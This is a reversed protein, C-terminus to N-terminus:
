QGIKGGKAPSRRAPDPGVPVALEEWGDRKVSVALGTILGVLGGVITAEVTYELAPPYDGNKHPLGPHDAYGYAVGLGAGALVGIGLGIFPCTWCTRRSEATAIEGYPICRADASGDNRLCISKARIDTVTGVNPAREARTQVRLTEGLVVAGSAIDHSHACGALLALAALM